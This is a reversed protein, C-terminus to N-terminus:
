RPPWDPHRRFWEKLQALTEDEICKLSDNRKKWNRGSVNIAKKEKATRENCIADLEPAPTSTMYEMELLLAIQTNVEEKSYWSSRGDVMFIRFLTTADAASMALRGLVVEWICRAYKQSSTRQRNLVRNKTYWDLGM